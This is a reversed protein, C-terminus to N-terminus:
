IAITINESQAHQRNEAPIALIESAKYGAKIFKVLNKIDMTCGGIYVAPGFPHGAGAGATERTTQRM